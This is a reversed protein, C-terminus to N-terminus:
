LTGKTSPIDDCRDDVAVALALARGLAKYVAEAIHHNNTGYPVDIHLNLHANNAFARMFEEVLETDFDGIKGSRYKVNYICCSRGCLDIAVQALSDEMPVTASGFRAIGRKDALAQEIAQGLCIAVDEVTHHADIHLDGKAKLTLDFLSHKAVHCLMHDFFGVGTEIRYKGSGDLNLELTIQTEKTNREIKATRDVM